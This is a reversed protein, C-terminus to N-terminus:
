SFFLVPLRGSSCAGSHAPARPALVRQLIFTTGEVLALSINPVCLIGLVSFVLFPARRLVHGDVGRRTCPVELDKGLPRAGNSCMADPAAGCDTPFIWIHSSIALAIVQGMHPNNLSVLREPRAEHRQRVAQHATITPQNPPPAAHLYLGFTRFGRQLAQLTAAAQQQRWANRGLNSACVTTTTATSSKPAGYSGQTAACPRHRVASLLTCSPLCLVCTASGASKPQDVVNHQPYRNHGWVNM